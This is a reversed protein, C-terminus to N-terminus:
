ASLSVCDQHYFIIWPYMAHSPSPAAQQIEAYNKCAPMAQSIDSGSIQPTFASLKHSLPRRMDLVGPYMPHQIFHAEMLNKNELQGDPRQQEPVHLTQRMDTPQNLNSGIPKWTCRAGNTATQKTVRKTKLSTIRGTRAGKPNVESQQHSPKLDLNQICAQNLGTNEQHQEPHRCNFKQQKM